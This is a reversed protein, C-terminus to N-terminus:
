KKQMNKITEEKKKGSREKGAEARGNFKRQWGEWWEREREKKKEKARAEKNAKQKTKREKRKLDRWRLRMATAASLM